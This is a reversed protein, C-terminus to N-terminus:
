TSLTEQAQAEAESDLQKMWRKLESSVKKYGDSERSTYKTMNEHDSRLTRATYRSLIASHYPVVQTMNTVLFSFQLANRDHNRLVNEM